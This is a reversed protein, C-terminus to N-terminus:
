VTFPNYLLLDIFPTSNAWPISAHELYPLSACRVTEFIDGLRKWLEAVRDKKESVPSATEGLVDVLSRPHFVCKRRVLVEFVNSSRAFTLYHLYKQLVVVNRYDVFVCPMSEYDEAPYSCNADRKYLVPVTQNRLPLVKKSLSLGYFFILAKFTSPSIRRRLSGPRRASLRMIKQLYQSSNLFRGLFTGKTFTQLFSGCTKMYM